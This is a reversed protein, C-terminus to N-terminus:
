IDVPFSVNNDASQRLDPEDTAPQASKTPAASAPLVPAAPTQPTTQAPTPASTQAAPQAPAQAVARLGVGIAALGFIWLSSFLWRRARQMM